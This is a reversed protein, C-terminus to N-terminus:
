MYFSNFGTMHHLCIRCGNWLHFLRSWLISSFGPESQVVRISRNVPTIALSSNICEACALSVGWKKDEAELASCQSLGGWMPRIIIFFKPSTQSWDPPLSKSGTWSSLCARRGPTSRRRSRNQLDYLKSSCLLHRGVVAVGMGLMVVSTGWPCSAQISCNHATGWQFCKQTFMCLPHVLLLPLGCCKKQHVGSTGRCASSGVCFWSTQAVTLVHLWDFFNNTKTKQKEKWKM